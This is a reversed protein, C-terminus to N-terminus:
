RAPLGHSTLAALLDQTSQPTKRLDEILELGQQILPTFSSAQHSCSNARRFYFAAKEFNGKYLWLCGLNYHAEVDDGALQNFQELASIAETLRGEQYYAIALNFYISPSPSKKLAKEYEQIALSTNGARLYFDGSSAWATLSGYIGLVTM